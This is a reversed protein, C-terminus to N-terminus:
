PKWCCAFSLPAVEQTNPACQGTVGEMEDMTELVRELRENSAMLRAELGVQVDQIASRLRLETSLKLIIGDGDLLGLIISTLNEEDRNRFRHPTPTVDPRKMFLRRRPSSALPSIRGTRPTSLYRQISAQRQRPTRPTRPTPPTDASMKIKMRPEDEATIFFGCQQDRQSSCRLFREGKSNETTSTKWIPEKNCACLWQGNFFVGTIYNSTLAM